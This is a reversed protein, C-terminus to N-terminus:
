ITAAIYAFSTLTGVLVIYISLVFSLTKERTVGKTDRSDTKGLIPFAFWGNKQWMRSLIPTRRVWKPSNPTWPYFWPVGGVTLMDGIIHALCGLAVAVPLVNWENPFWWTIAAAFALSIFWREFWSKSKGVGFVKLTFATLFLAFVGSGIAVDVGGINMTWMGALIALVTFVIIGLISHTGHRHGGSIKGIFSCLIQTPSPIFGVRPLSHAITGNHHDIDPLLAAGSCLMLGLGYTMPSVELIGPTLPIAPASPVINALTLAPAAALTWIAAGTIAHSYGKM